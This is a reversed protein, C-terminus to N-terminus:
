ARQVLGLQGGQVQVVIDLFTRAGRVVGVDNRRQRERVHLGVRGDFAQRPALAHVHDPTHLVQKRVQLPDHTAAAHGVRQRHFADGPFYAGHGVAQDPQLPNPPHLARVRM